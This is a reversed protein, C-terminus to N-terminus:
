EEWELEINLRKALTEAAHKATDKEFLWCSAIDYFAEDLESIKIEAYYHTNNPRKIRARVKTM